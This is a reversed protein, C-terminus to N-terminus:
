IVLAHNTNGNRSNAGELSQIQSLQVLSFPDLMRKVCHCVLHRSCCVQWYSMLVIANKQSRQCSIYSLVISLCRLPMSSHQQISNSWLVGGTCYHLIRQKSARVCHYKSYWINSACPPGMVGQVLSMLILGRKVTTM